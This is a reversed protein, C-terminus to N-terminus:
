PSLYPSWFFSQEMMWTEKINDTTRQTFFSYICYLKWWQVLSIVFLYVHNERLIKTNYLFHFIFFAATKSTCDAACRSAKKIFYPTSKNAHRWHKLRTWLCADTIAHRMYQLRFLIMIKTNFLEKNSFFIYLIDIFSMVSDLFYHVCCTSLVLFFASFYRIVWVQARFFAM